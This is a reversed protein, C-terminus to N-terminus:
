ISIYVNIQHNENKAGERERGKEIKQWTTPQSTYTVRAHILHHQTTLEFTYVSKLPSETMRRIRKQVNRIFSHTQM